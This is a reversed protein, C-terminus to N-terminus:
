GLSKADLTQAGQRAAAAEPSQPFEHVLRSLVKRGAILDQRYHIHWAAMLNLWEARKADPQEPMKLLLMIQELGEDVRNLHEALLLAFEERAPVDDSDHTLKQVCSNAQEAANHRDLESKALANRSGSSAIPRSATPLNLHEPVPIPR